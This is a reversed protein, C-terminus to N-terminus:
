PLPQRLRVDKQWSVVKWRQIRQKRGVTWNGGESFGGFIEALVRLPSAFLLQPWLGQTEPGQPSAFRLTGGLWRPLRGRTASFKKIIKAEPRKKFDPQYNQKM